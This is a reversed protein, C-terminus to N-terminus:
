STGMGWKPATRGIASQRLSDSRSVLSPTSKMRAGWIRNSPSGPSCDVMNKVSGEPLGISILPSALRLVANSVHSNVDQKGRGFGAPGFVLSGQAGGDGINPNLRLDGCGHRGFDDVVDDIGGIGLHLIECGIGAGLRHQVKPRTDLRHHAILCQFDREAAHDIRGQGLPHDFPDGAVDQAQMEPHVGM